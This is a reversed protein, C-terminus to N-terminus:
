PKKPVIKGSGGEVHLSIIHCAPCGGCLNERGWGHVRKSKIHVLHWREFVDGESPLIRDKSCDQHKRIECKGGSEVYVQNRIAQKEEKSPEGRRPKSRVKRIPTRKIM